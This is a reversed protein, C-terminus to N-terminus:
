ELIPTKKQLVTPRKFPFIFLYFFIFTYSNTTPKDTKRAWERGEIMPASFHKPRGEALFLNGDSINVLPALSYSSSSTSAKAQNSDPLLTVGRVQKEDGDAIPKGIPRRVSSRRRKPQNKNARKKTHLETRRLGPGPFNTIFPRIIDLAVISFCRGDAPITFFSSFAFGFPHNASRLKAHCAM